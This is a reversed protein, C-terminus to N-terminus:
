KAPLTASFKAARNIWDTLQDDEELGASAVVVWGMLTGRGTIQFASVHRARLADESQEPGVRVLLSDNRVAVLLNGNLLFALGGFMRKEAVGKRRALLHRVRDALSEDFAM